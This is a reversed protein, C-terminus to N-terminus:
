VGTPTREAILRGSGMVAPAVVAHLLGRVRWVGPARRLRRVRGCVGALQPPGVIGPPHYCRPNRGVMSAGYSRLPIPYGSASEAQGSGWGCGARSRGAEMTRWQDSVDARASYWRCAQSLWSQCRRMLLSLSGRARALVIGRVNVSHSHCANSEVGMASGAAGTSCVADSLSLIPM